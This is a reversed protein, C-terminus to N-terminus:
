GAIGTTISYVLITQKTVANRASESIPLPQCNVSLGTLQEPEDLSTTTLSLADVSFDVPHGALRARAEERRAM